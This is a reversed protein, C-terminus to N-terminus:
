TLFNEGDIIDIYYILLTSVEMSIEAAASISLTNTASCADSTSEGPVRQFASLPRYGM